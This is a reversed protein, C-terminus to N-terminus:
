RIFFNQENDLNKLRNLEYWLPIVDGWEKRLKSQGKRSGKQYYYYKSNKANFNSDVHERSFGWLSIVTQEFAEGLEGMTRTVAMPSKGMQYLESWGAVPIFFLLEFSQRRLQYLLANETRIRAKSKDADDDFASSLITNLIM